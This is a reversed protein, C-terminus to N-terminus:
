GGYYEADLQKNLWEHWYAEDTQCRIIDEITPNDEDPKEEPGYGM